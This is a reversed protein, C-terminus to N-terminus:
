KQSDEKMPIATTKLSAQFLLDYNIFEKNLMMTLAEFRVFAYKKFDASM